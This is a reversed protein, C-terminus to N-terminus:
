KEGPTVQPLNGFSPVTPRPPAAALIYPYRVTFTTGGQQTSTFTVRGGLYRDTLMRVSYTGLGRGAGKTSFSRQFVQLQVARPMAAPNHVWLAVSGPEARCGITVRAGEECAELANRVLNGLVRSLLIRDTTFEVDDTAPDVVVGRGVAAEHNNYCRSVEALLALSRVPAAQVTLEGHEAATLMRQAGIEDVLRGSAGALLRFLEDREGSPAEQIVSVLGRVESATNLVDHFFIHELARRRQEDSIDVAAVLVCAADGLIPTTTLRLDLSDGSKLSVRCERTAARGDIAALMAARADCTECAASAGCGGPTEDSHICHLVEGLRRGLVDTEGAGVMALLARNAFTLQRHGNVVFFPAPVGDFVSRLFGDFAFVRRQADVVERSTIGAASSPSLAVGAATNM